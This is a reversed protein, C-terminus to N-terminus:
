RHEHKLGSLTCTTMLCRMMTSQVENVERQEGSGHTKLVVMPHKKVRKMKLNREQGEIIKKECSRCTRKGRGKLILISWPQVLEKINRWQV